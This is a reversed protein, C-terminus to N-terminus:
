STLPHLTNSPACSDRIVANWWDPVERDLRRGIAELNNLVGRVSAPRLAPDKNLMQMILMGLDFPIAPNISTLEPPNDIALARLWQLLSTRALPLRGTGLEYLVVGLSYIDSPPAISSGDAQEPSMYQLTGSISRSRYLQSDHTASHTLGFDMLKVRGTPEELWINSPKVDRHVLQRAHAAALGLSCERAIQMIRGLTVPENLALWQRLNHGSLVPMVVYPLGHDEGIQYIPVIYDSTLGGAARAERLFQRVAQPDSLMMPKLVKVAVQRMLQTDEALFVIGMGGEGLTRLLRYHALRGLDSSELPHPLWSYHQVQTPAFQCTEELPPTAPTVAFQSAHARPDASASQVLRVAFCCYPDGRLMCAREEVTVQEDFARAVGEIIGQALVCLKRPSSYILELENETRWLCTLMPPRLGPNRLRVTRHGIEETTALVALTSQEPRVLTSYMALVHPALYQGVSRLLDPLPQGAAEALKRLLSMVEEDPYERTPSYTRVPIAAAYHVDSWIEPGFRERAFQELHFCIIGHMSRPHVCASSVGLRSDQGTSTCIAVSSTCRVRDNGTGGDREPEHGQKSVDRM